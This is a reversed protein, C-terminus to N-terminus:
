VKSVPRGDQGWRMSEGSKSTRGSNGNQDATTLPILNRNSMKSRQKSKYKAWSYWVGGGSNMCIGILILPTPHVGGLLFFGGVTTVVGKLVGVVTTTLASTYMACLFLSYNLAMGMFSCGILLWPLGVHRAHAEAYQGWVTWAEGTLVMLVLLIPLSLIANFYLLESTTAGREVGSKEVVLLYSAQLVCSSLAYIYGLLDFTLDGLGAVVCGSVILAVSSVIELPPRKRGYYSHFGLVLIPTMRKLANYMPINLTRLGMLAFGTNATYLLTVVLLQRCREFTVEFRDVYGALQLAWLAVITAAMQLVLVTLPLPFEQLTAKNIFGMAVAIAGYLLAPITGKLWEPTPVPVKGNLAKPAASTVVDILPRAIALPGRRHHAGAESIMAGPQQGFAAM